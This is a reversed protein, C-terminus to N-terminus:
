TNIINDAKEQGAQLLQTQKPDILNNISYLMGLSVTTDNLINNLIEIIESKNNAIDYNSSITAIVSSVQSSADWYHQILMNITELFANTAETETVDKADIATVTNETEETINSIKKLM